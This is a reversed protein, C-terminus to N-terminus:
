LISHPLVQKVKFIGNSNNFYSGNTISLLVKNTTCMLPGWEPGTVTAAQNLHTKKQGPCQIVSFEVYEGQYLTRFENDPINLHSWHVFIDHTENQINYTIFGYGLKNSFWKCRGLYRTLKKPAEM